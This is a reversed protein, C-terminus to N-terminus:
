NVRAAPGGKLNIRFEGKVKKSLLKYALWGHSAIIIIVMAAFSLNLMRNISEILIGLEPDTPIELLFLRRFLFGVVSIAITVLLFVAFYVRAWDRRKLFAFSAILTILSLIFSIATFLHMHELSYKWAGPLHEIIPGFRAFIAPFDKLLQAPPKFFFMISQLLSTVTSYGFFGVLVWSLNTVFKSEGHGPLGEKQPTM